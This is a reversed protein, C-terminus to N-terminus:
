GPVEPPGLYKRGHPSRNQVQFIRAQEDYKRKNNNPRNPGMKPFVGEEPDGKPKGSLRSVGLFASGGRSM